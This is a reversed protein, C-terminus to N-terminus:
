GRASRRRLTAWETQGITSTIPASTHHTRSYVRWQEASATRLANGATTLTTSVNSAPVGTNDNEGIGPIFVRGQLRRGAVYVNTGTALLAQVMSPLPDSTNQGLVPAPSTDSESGTIQGTSDDVLFTEGQVYFAAGVTCLTAIESWFNHVASLTLGLQGSAYAFYMNSYGTKASAGIIETRVLRLMVM